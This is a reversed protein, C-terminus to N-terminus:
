INDCDLDPRYPCSCPPYTLRLISETCWWGTLVSTLVSYVVNISHNAVGHVVQLRRSCPFRRFRLIGRYESFYHSVQVETYPRQTHSLNVRSTRKGKMVQQTADPTTAPRNDSRSHSNMRGDLSMRFVEIGSTILAQDSSLCPRAM